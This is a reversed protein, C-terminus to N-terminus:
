WTVPMEWPPEGSAVPVNARGVAQLFRCAVLARAYADGRKQKKLSDRTSPEMVASLDLPGAVTTVGCLEFRPHNVALALAFADDIDDGIDTDLLIPVRVAAARLPAMLVVLFFSTLLLRMM